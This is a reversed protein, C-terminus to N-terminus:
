PVRMKFEHCQDCVLQPRKHGSHCQACEAEGLHTDHPNIDGKDTRKALTEYKGGHCTLCKTMSVPGPKGGEHCSQCTVGRQGHREAMMPQDAAAVSLSVAAAALAAAIKIKSFM